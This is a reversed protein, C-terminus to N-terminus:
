KTEVAIAGFSARIGYIQSAEMSRLVRINKIDEVNVLSDIDSFEHGIPVDNVVFLVRTDSNFSFERKLYVNVLGSRNEVYVGPLRQIQKLLSISPDVTQDDQQTTEVTEEQNENNMGPEMTKCGTIFLIFFFPLIYLFVQRM